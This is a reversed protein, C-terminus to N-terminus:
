RKMKLQYSRLSNLKFSIKQIDKRVKELAPDTVYNRDSALLLLSLLEMLSSYSINTFNAKNKSGIRANGEVLNAMVSVASRKIQSSLGFKENVPFADCLDYVDNALSRAEKFVDLDEFSYKYM